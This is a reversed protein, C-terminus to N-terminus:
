SGLVFRALTATGFGSPNGQDLGKLAPGAVDLHAWRVGKPVHRQLFLAGWQTGPAPTSKGVNGSDAIASKMAEAYQADLPPTVYPEASSDGATAIRTVLKQDSGHIVARDMGSVFIQAGTLTAIDVIETAGLVTGAHHIADALVLRGEADPHTIEIFLGSAAKYIDGPRMARDSIMNEAAPIVGVVRKNPKLKGIAYMAGIVAAAGAMDGKMENMSFPPKAYYGGTDMTLGKGVLAIRQKSRVEKPEYVIEILVPLQISGKGVAHILNYGHGQLWNDDRITVTLGLPELLAKTRLALEMPFLVNPPELILEKALATGEAIATAENIADDSVRRLGLLDLSDVKPKPKPDKRYKLFDFNGALVGEILNQIGTEPFDLGATVIEVATCRHERATSSATTGLKKLALIQQAHTGPKVGVVLVGGAKRRLAPFYVPGGSDPQWEEIKLRAHIDGGVLHKLPDFIRSGTRGGKMAAANVPVVILAKESQGLGDQSGRVLM